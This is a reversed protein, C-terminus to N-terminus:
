SCGGYSYRDGRDFLPRARYRCGYVFGVVTKTPLHDAWTERIVAQHYEKLLDADPPQKRIWERFKDASDLLRLIESFPVVGSNVAERISKAELAVEAFRSLQSESRSRRQLYSDVTHMCIQAHVRDTAVESNFSAAYYLEEHAYQLMSLLRAANLSSHSPPIIQAYIAKAQQYDINTDVAFGSGGARHLRFRFPDPLAYGPAINHLITRVVPETTATDAMAEYAKNHDFASHDLSRLLGVFKRGGLKAQSTNGAAQRFRREAETRPERSLNSFTVLNHLEDKGVQSTQIGISDMVLHITLRDYKLLDLLVFPPIRSLLEDLTVMNAIVSVKGYYILSEAVAGVDIVPGPMTSNRFTISEFM